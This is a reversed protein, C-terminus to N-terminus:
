NWRAGRRRDSEPSGLLGEYAPHGRHRRLRVPRLRGRIYDNVVPDGFDAAVMAALASAAVESFEELCAETSVIEAGAVLQNGYCHDGNAHTNVLTRIPRTATIPDMSDLM